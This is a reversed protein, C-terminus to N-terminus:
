VWLVNISAKNSNANHSAKSISGFTCLNRKPPLPPAPDWRQPDGKLEASCVSDRTSLSPKLCHGLLPEHIMEYGENVNVDDNVEAFSDNWIMTSHLPPPPLSLLAANEHHFSNMSSFGSEDDVSSSAVSKIRDNCSETDSSVTIRINSHEPLPPLAEEDTSSLNSYVSGDSSSQFSNCSERTKRDRNIEPANATNCKLGSPAPPPPPKTDHLVADKLSLLSQTTRFLRFAEQSLKEANDELATENLSKKPARRRFSESYICNTQIFSYKNNWNRTMPVLLWFYFEFYRHGQVWWSNKTLAVIPLGVFLRVTVSFMEKLHSQRNFVTKIVLM